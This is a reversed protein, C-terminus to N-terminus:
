REVLLGKAVMTKFLAAAKDAPAGPYAEAATKPERLGAILSSLRADIALMAGTRLNVAFPTPKNPDDLSRSLPVIACAPDLAFRGTSKPAPAPPSAYAEAIRGAVLPRRASLRQAHAHLAEHLQEETLTGEARFPQTRALDRDEPVPSVEVKVGGFSDGTRGRTWHFRRLGAVWPFLGAELVDGTRDLQDRGVGPAGFWWEGVVQVGADTLKQIGAKVRELPAEGGRAALFRDSAAAFPVVALACGRSILREPNLLEDLTVEGGFRQGAALRGGDRWAIEEGEALDDKRMRVLPASPFEMSFRATRLPEFMVLAPRHRMAFDGDLEITARANLYTAFLLLAPLQQDQTLRVRVTKAEVAADVARMVDDRFPLGNSLAATLADLLRETTGEDLDLDDVRLRVPSPPGSIGALVAGIARFRVQAHPSDVRQAGACLQLHRLVAERDATPLAKESEAIARDLEARSTVREVFARACDFREFGAPVAARQTFDSHPLVVLPSPASM